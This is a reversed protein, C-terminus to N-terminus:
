KGQPQYVRAMLQRGKPTRHFPVETVKLDFKGSPNYSTQMKPEGAAHASLAPVGAAGLASLKKLFDRREIIMFGFHYMLGSIDTDRAMSTTGVPVTPASTLPTSM